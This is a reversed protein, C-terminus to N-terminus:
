EREDARLGLLRDLRNAETDITVTTSMGAALPPKSDNDEEMQLRVMIRQVVKVWNGSSNQPPLISFEAGTAPTVSVVRALWKTGPYTDVEIAATQGRRVHTLDTEKFNAEVWPADDNVLTFLPLGAAVYEGPEMRVNAAIGDSPAVVKVRSLDLRAKDLDAKSQKFRPHDETAVDPNGGLKAKVAEVEHKAADREDVSANFEHYARDLQEKSIAERAVLDKYRMYETQRYRVSEEAKALSAQKQLYEARMSDIDDRVGYLHAEARMAAIQFPEPDLQFLEDGRAVPANDRVRVEAVTGSVESGIATMSLRVYANDTSVYRGGFLYFVIGVLTLVAPGILLIATKTRLPRGSQKWKRKRHETM